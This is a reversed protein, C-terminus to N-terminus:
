HSSPPINERNTDKIIEQIWELKNCISNVNLCGFFINKPHKSKLKKKLEPFLIKDDDVDGDFNDYSVNNKIKSLKKSSSKNSLTEVIENNLVNSWRKQVKM